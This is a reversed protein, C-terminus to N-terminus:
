CSLSPISCHNYLVTYVRGESQLDLWELEKRPCIVRHDPKRLWGRNTVLGGRVRITPYAVMCTVPIVGPLLLFVKRLKRRHSEAHYSVVNRSSVRLGRKILRIDLFIHFRSNIVTNKIKPLSWCIQKSKLKFQVASAAYNCYQKLNIDKSFNIQRKIHLLM